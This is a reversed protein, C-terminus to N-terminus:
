EAGQPCDKGDMYGLAVLRACEAASMGHGEAQVATEQAKDVAARLAALQAAEAPTGSGARNEQEIPDALLDFHQLPPQDRYNGAPVRVAEITKTGRERLAQLDYGEFDQQSFAPRSAPHNAWTPPTWASADAPPTGDEPAVPPPQMLGLDGDFRDDFLAKGQWTQPPSIGGARAITPAIDVQRVQWPVRTGARQGGPLRAILPVRLQEDYLTTGHWWGGHELFEEGHDATVLLLTKDLRGEARLWEVFSGIEGDAHVVEGAYLQRLEALMEKPPVPHEARGYAYGDYPHRFYPDHPEMLHVFLFSPRSRDAALYERARALQTEAPLYFEEVRKKKVVKTYGKRLAAYMSLAFTSEKALLPFEPSYPFWDFGQGFGQAGTVNANNPLGGTRYGGARMVEALTVVMGPLASSKQECTHSGPALSTLLSATSARTWSASTIFQDFVVSEAALKALNPSSGAPAGYPEIADARLTDVLILVVDPGSAAAEGPDRSVVMKGGNGPAQVQAAAAALAAGVLWAATTGRTTALARLPGRLWREGLWALVLLAVAGGGALALMAQGPVGQEAYVLKNVVYRGIVVGLPWTVAAASVSWRRAPSWARFFLAIAIGVGLGMGAGIAGYLLWGYVLAQYEAANGGALISLAECLGVLSGACAGAGASTGLGRLM